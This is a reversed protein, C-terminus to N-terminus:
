RNTTTKTIRAYCPRAEKQQSRRKQTLAGALVVGGGAGRWRGSARPDPPSNGTNGPQLTLNEM